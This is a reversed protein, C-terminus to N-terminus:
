RGKHPIIRAVKADELQRHQLKSRYKRIIANQKCKGCSGKASLEHLAQAELDPYSSLGEVRSLINNLKM